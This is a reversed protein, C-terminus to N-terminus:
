LMRLRELFRTDGESMGQAEGRGCVLDWLPHDELALLKEMSRADSESLARGAQEAWFRSLVIDLELLARRCHWRLRDDRIREQDTM